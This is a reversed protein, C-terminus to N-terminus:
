LGCHYGTHTHMHASPVFSKHGTTTFLTTVSKFSCGKVCLKSTRQPLPPWTFLSAPVKEKLALVEMHHQRAMISDLLTSVNQVLVYRDM